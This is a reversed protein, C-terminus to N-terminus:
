LDIGERSIPTSAFGLDLSLHTGPIPITDPLIAIIKNILPVLKMLDDEVISKSKGLVLGGISNILGNMVYLFDNLGDFEIGLEDATMMLYTLNLKLDNDEVATTVNAKLELNDVSITLNGIDAMIPPDLIFEYGISFDLIFKTLDFTIYGDHM